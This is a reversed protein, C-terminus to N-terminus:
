VTQNPHMPDFQPPMPAAPEIPPPTQENEEPMAWKDEEPKEEAKPEDKKLLSELEQQVQYSAIYQIADIGVARAGEINKPSDDIFVCEEPKAGITELVKKYIAADPKALHMESSIFVGDFYDYLHFQDLISRLFDSSANSLLIIKYDQRLRELMPLLTRNAQAASIWESRVQDPTQGTMEGFFTFIDSSSLEGLDGRHSIDKIKDSKFQDAYLDHAHAWIQLAEGCVVGFCDFILVKKKPAEQEAPAEQNMNDM